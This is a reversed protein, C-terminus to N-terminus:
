PTGNSSTVTVDASDITAIQRTTITVSSSGPPDTTGVVLTCNLVGPISFIPAMAANAIVDKGMVLADGYDLIATLARTDGDSPYYAADKTITATVYVPVETAPSYPVSHSIGQSDTVTGASTGYITIGAAVGRPDDATGIIAERIEAVVATSDKLVVVEVSKAPLGSGDTVMTTNEFVMADLVGSVELVRARIAELAAGANAHLETVRRLRLDAESEVDSGLDADAANYVSSWGSVPTEITTITGTLGPIAGTDVSQAAATAYAAGDGAYSWHVSGDTIDASTGTPGGSGASTGTTICVYINLPSDNKCYDGATYGHTNSWATAAALTASATTKFKSGVDTVSAQKGSAIVTGATGTLTLTVTSHAAPDRLTGTIACIADHAAGTAQDPDNSAYVEAMADWLESERESLLGVIQGFSSQAALDISTGFVSQLAAEIEAKIVLLPKALFGTVSLGYTTM